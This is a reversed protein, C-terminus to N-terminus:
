CFTQIYTITLFHGSCCLWISVSAWVSNIWNQCKGKVLNTGTLYFEVMVPDTLMATCTIESAHVEFIYAVTLFIKLQFINWFPFTKLFLIFQWFYDSYHNFTSFCNLENYFIMSTRWFCIEVTKQYENSTTLVLHEM